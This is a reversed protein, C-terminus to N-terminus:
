ILFKFLYRGDICCELFKMENISDYTIKGNHKQLISDIEEQVKQQISSNRALEYLCYSLTTSSTEFGALFFVFAQATVEKITLMKGKEDNSIVTEWQDDLQVNGTNRLQVLLQFFDKRVVNNKERYEMTQEVMATMFDEVDRDVVRIKFFKLLPPYVFTLLLRLGNKLNIDFFKKGYKRFSTNPNDICNINAGFAVSAIVNTMYRASIDRVEVTDSNLAVKDMYKQLTDGCDVLTSFMAKLKGSTFTPSLKMRLNKWKDGNLSFLHGSLPDNKEDSHVGRDHFSQFDKVFISRILEPDRLILIPRLAGYVGIFPEKTSRYFEQTLEGISTKQLFSRAFNGFPFSPPLSKVGRRDWYSYLYKIYIYIITTFVIFGYLFDSSIDKFIIAMQNAFIYYCFLRLM